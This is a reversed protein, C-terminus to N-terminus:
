PLLNKGNWDYEYATLEKNDYTQATLELDDYELATLSNVRQGSALEDIINVINDEEGTFPSTMFILYPLNNLTDDLKKDLYELRRDFILLTENIQSELEDFENDIRQTLIEFNRITEESLEQFQAEVQEVFSDYLSSLRLNEEEIAQMRANLDDVQSQWTKSLEVVIAVEDKLEKIKEIIWDLNLEHVNSYPYENWIM